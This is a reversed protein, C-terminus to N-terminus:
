QSVKSLELSFSLDVLRLELLNRRPSLIKAEIKDKNTRKGIGLSLCVRLCTFLCVSQSLLHKENTFLVVPEHLPLHISFLSPLSLSLSLSLSFSLFFSLSLFFSSTPVQDSDILFLCFGMVKVLMHKEAPTLYNRHEFMHLAISIIDCFLDEYNRIKELNEPCFYTGRIM